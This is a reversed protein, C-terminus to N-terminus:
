EKENERIEKEIEERHMEAYLFAQAVDIASLTPFTLLIESEPAGLQRLREVAWVPIRTRNIRADGGCIDPTRVIGSLVFAQPLWAETSERVATQVLPGNSEPSVSQFMAREWREILALIFQKRQNPALKEIEILLDSTHM